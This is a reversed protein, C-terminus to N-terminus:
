FNETIRDHAETMMEEALLGIQYIRASQNYTANASNVIPTGIRPPEYVRENSFSGQWIVKDDSKRKLIIKAAVTLRYQTILVTSGPLAAIQKKDEIAGQATDVTLITGELILPSDEKDMVKAVQSRAFRRVLADTFIPEIGVEPTKNKFIPIAVQTYGGPLSRESLGFRYACGAQFLSAVILIFNIRLRLQAIM